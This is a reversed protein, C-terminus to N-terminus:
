RSARKSAQAAVSTPLFLRDPRSPFRTFGFAEYFRAAADDIADVIIAYVALSRGAGLVREVADALLLAGLGQGRALRDRALRGILAAPVLGYRPLKRALEQPLDEIELAYASLSYFGVVGLRDDIAVFVRAMSRKEDQGARQRFWDDLAAQGCAFASRDHQPGLPEIRLAL